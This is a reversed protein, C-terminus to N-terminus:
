IKGGIMNFFIIILVILTICVYLKDKELAFAFLSLIVRLIPTAILLIVGFQIITAAINGQSLGNWMTSFTIVATDNANFTQLDPMKELGHFALYIIGGILAVVCASLAGFRLMKGIFLQM